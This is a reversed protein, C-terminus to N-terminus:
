MHVVEFMALTEGIIVAVVYKHLITVQDGECMFVEACTDGRVAVVERLQQTCTMIDVKRQDKAITIMVM